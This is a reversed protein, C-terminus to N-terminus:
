VAINFMHESSFVTLTFTYAAARAGFVYLVPFHV